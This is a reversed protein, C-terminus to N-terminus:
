FIPKLHQQISKKNPISKNPTLLLILTGGNGKLVKPAAIKIAAIRIFECGRVANGELKIINFPLELL